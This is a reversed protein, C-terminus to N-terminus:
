WFPQSPTMEVAAAHTAFYRGGSRSSSTDRRSAVIRTRGVRAHARLGLRLIHIAQRWGGGEGKCVWEVFIVRRAAASSTGSATMSICNCLPPASSTAMPPCGLWTTLATAPALPSSPPPTGPRERHCRRRIITIPPASRLRIMARIIRRPSVAVSVPSSVATSVSSCVPVTEETRCSV